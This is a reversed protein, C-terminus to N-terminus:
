EKDQDSGGLQHAITEATQKTLMEAAEIDRPGLDSIQDTSPKEGPTDKANKEVRHMTGDQDIYLKELHELTGPALGLRWQEKGWEVVYLRDNIDKNVDEVEEEDESKKKEPEFLENIWDRWRKSSSLSLELLEPHGAFDVYGDLEAVEAPWRGIDKKFLKSHHYLVQLRQTALRERSLDSGGFEDPAAAVTGMPPVVLVAVPIPGTHTVTLGAYGLNATLLGDSLQAKVAEFAPLLQGEAVAGMAVNAYPSFREYVREWNVWIQGDTKAKTPLLKRKDSRPFQLWREVFREPSTSTWGIVLFSRERDKADKEDAVFLVPRMVLPMMAGPYRSGDSWLVTRDWVTIEHWPPAQDREVFQENLKRAAAQLAKILGDAERARTQVVIDPAPIFGTGPLLTLCFESDVHSAIPGITGPADGIMTIEGPAEMLMQPGFGAMSELMGPVIATNAALAGLASDPVFFTQKVRDVIAKAGVGAIAPWLVKVTEEWEGSEGVRGAYEVGTVVSFSSLFTAGSDKETGTLNLRCTALDPTAATSPKDAKVPIDTHSALITGSEGVRILYAFPADGVRIEAGGDDGPIFKLGEIAEKLAENGLVAELAERAKVVPWDFTVAWRARGDLDPAFIFASVPTDPCQGLKEVVTTLPVEDLTKVSRKTQAAALQALHELLGGARSRRAEALLQRVSTIRLEFRPTLEAGAPAAQAPAEAAKPAVADVAEQAPKTDEIRPEASQPEDQALGTAPLFILSLGLSLIGWSRGILPRRRAVRHLMARGKEIEFENM